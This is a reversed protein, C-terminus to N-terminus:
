AFVILAYLRFGGRMKQSPELRRAQTFFRVYNPLFEAKRVPNKLRKAPTKGGASV